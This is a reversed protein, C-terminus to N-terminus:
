ILGITTQLQDLVESRSNRGTEVKKDAEQQKGQTMLRM